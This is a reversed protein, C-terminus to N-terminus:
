HRLGNRRSSVIVKGAGSINRDCGCYQSDDDCVLINFEEM